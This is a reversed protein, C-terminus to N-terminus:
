GAPCAPRGLGSDPEHVHLRVGGLAIDNLRSAPAETRFHGQRLADMVNPCQWPLYITGAPMWVGNANGQFVQATTTEADAILIEPRGDGNLDILIADCSAATCNPRMWTLSTKNWDMQVFSQPLRAGAPYVVLRDMLLQKSAVTPAYRNQQQLADQAMRKVYGDKSAALEQLAQMGYRGGDWRLFHYDFRERSIKGSNLRAMQNAVAIRAPSAIPTFLAIIMTLILLAMGFNWAKISDLWVGRKTAAWTYGAAYGIATIVSAALMVRDVSWGHQEVRLFLAYAAILTLPLTLIAALTGSRRLIRPPLHDPEGDQHAANILVVLAATAVLLLVSAHGIAWLAKLGTFPLSVVFGAVILTILPLLWSLLTLLLTRAGRVLSPRIDTLHLAGAAALATVPIAFWAYGILRQFFDLKILNFLGAGLWLLLWFMGVFLGALALQVALKWATDFHTPYTAMLRRDTYGGLVLAHAVFLGAGWIFFLKASPIVHPQAANQFKWDQPWASWIDFSALMTTVLLAVGGWLLAKRWPLEGLALMLLTPIFLWNLLLPAFISGQTAPWVKDDFASYLLYLALGQALGIALRAAFLRQGQFAADM